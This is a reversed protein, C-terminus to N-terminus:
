PNDWPDVVEPLRSKCNPCRGNGMSRLYRRVRDRVRWSDSLKELRDALLHAFEVAWERDDTGLSRAETVHRGTEPDEGVYFRYHISGGPSRQKVRVTNGHTGTSYSWRGQEDVEGPGETGEVEPGDLGRRAARAMRVAEAPDRRVDVDALTLPGLTWLGHGGYEETWGLEELEALAEEYSLPRGVSM